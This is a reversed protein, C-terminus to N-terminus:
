RYGTLKLCYTTDEPENSFTIWNLGGPCVGDKGDEVREVTYVQSSVDGTITNATCDTRSMSDNSFGSRVHVCDGVNFEPGSIRHLVDPNRAVFLVATVAVAAVVAIALRVGIPKDRWAKRSADNM